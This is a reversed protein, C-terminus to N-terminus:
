TPILAVSLGDLDVFELSGNVDNIDAAGLEALLSGVQEQDFPVTKIGFSAIGPTSGYGYAPEQLLIHTLSDPFDFRILDGSLSSEQGYFIRYWRLAQGLSLAAILWHWRSMPRVWM